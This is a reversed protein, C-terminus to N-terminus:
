IKIFRYLLIFPYLMIFFIPGIPNEFEEKSSLYVGITQYAILIIIIILITM